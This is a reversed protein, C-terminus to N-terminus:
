EMKTSITSSFLHKVLYIKKAITGKWNIPLIMLLIKKGKVKYSYVVKFGFKQYIHIAKTNSSPVNLAVYNYNRKIARIVIERTLEQGIGRDQWEKKVVLFFLNRGRIGAVGVVKEKVERLALLKSQLLDLLTLGFTEKEEGLSGLFIKLKQKIDNSVM